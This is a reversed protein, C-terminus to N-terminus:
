KFSLMKSYNRFEFVAKIAFVDGVIHAAYYFFLYVADNVYFVRLSQYIALFTLAYSVTFLMKRLQGPRFHNVKVFAYIPTIVCIALILVQEILLIM